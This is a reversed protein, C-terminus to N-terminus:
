ASLQRHRRFAPSRVSTSVGLRQAPLGRHSPSEQLGHGGRTQRRGHRRGASPGVIPRGISLVRRSGPHRGLAQRQRKELSPDPPRALRGPRGPRFRAFLQISRVEVIGVLGHHGPAEDVEPGRRVVRHTGQICRRALGDPPEGRFPRHSECGGDGPALRVDRGVVAKEVAQIRPGPLQHPPEARPGTAIAQDAAATQDSAIGTARARRDDVVDHVDRGPHPGGFPDVHVRQVGVGAFLPPRVVGAAIDVDVQGVREGAPEAAHRRLSVQDSGLVNQEDGGSPAHRGSEIAVRATQEVVLRLLRVVVPRGVATAHPAGCGAVQIEVRVVPKLIGRFRVDALGFWTGLVAHDGIRQGRAVLKAVQGALVAHQDGDVNNKGRAIATDLRDVQLDKTPLFPDHRGIGPPRRRVRSPDVAQGHGAFGEDRAVAVRDCGEVGGVALRHPSGVELAPLHPPHGNGVSTQHGCRVRSLDETKAGTPTRGGHRSAHVLLPPRRRDGVRLVVPRLVDDPAGTLRFAVGQDDALRVAAQRLRQGPLRPQVDDAQEAIRTSHRGLALPKQVATQQAGADHHVGHVVRGVQPKWGIESVENNNRRLANRRLLAIAHEPRTAAHEAKEAQVVVGPVLEDVTRVDLHPM